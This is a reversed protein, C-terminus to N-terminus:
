ENELLRRRVDELSVTDEPNAEYELLRREVEREQEPSLRAVDPSTKMIDDWLDHVLDLKQEATLRSFDFGHISHAM